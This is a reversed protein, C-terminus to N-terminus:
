FCVCVPFMDCRGMWGGVWRGVKFFVCVTVGM